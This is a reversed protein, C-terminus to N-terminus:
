KTALNRYMGVITIDRKKRYTLGDDINYSNRENDVSNLRELDHRFDEIADNSPVFITMNQDSPIEIGSEQLLENFEEVGINSLTTKLDEMNLKTCGTVTQDASREYGYCCQHRVTVRKIEGNRSIQTTCEHYNFDDRCTTFSMDM